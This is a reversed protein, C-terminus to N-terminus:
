IAAIPVAAMAPRVDLWIATNVVADMLPSVVASKAANVEAWTAAIVVAASVLSLEM